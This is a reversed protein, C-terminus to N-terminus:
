PFPINEELEDARQHHAPSHRARMAIRKADDMTTIRRWEHTAEAHDTAQFTLRFKHPSRFEANGGRGRETIEVFGLAEAERLAPAISHRDIGYEGFQDFTVVLGGNEHGAHRRLEIDIRDIVRHASLSLSRWAPSELIEVLRPSFQGAIRNRRRAGAIGPRRPPGGTQM